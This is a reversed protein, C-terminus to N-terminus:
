KIYRHTRPYHKPFHYSFLLAMIPAAIFKLTPLARDILAPTLAFLIRWDVLRLM